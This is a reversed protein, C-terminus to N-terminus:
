IQPGAGSDKPISGSSLIMIKQWIKRSLGTTLDEIDNGTEVVVPDDYNQVYVAAIKSILSLLETCYDLYRSLQFANLNRDPSSPTRWKQTFVSDPDKTLQHMDVVHALARLESMLLVARNRKIKNEIAVLSIIGAGIFVINSLAAEAIQMFENLGSCELPLGIKLIIQILGVSFVAIVIGIAIRFFYNPRGIETAKLKAAEAVEFVERAVKSLGSGPFRESIRRYLLDLSQILLVPDLRHYQNLM